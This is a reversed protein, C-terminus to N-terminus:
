DSPRRAVFQTVFSLGAHLAGEHVQREGEMAHLVAWGPFAAGLEDLTLMWAPDPPGGTRYPVQRPHYHEFLVVGGPRVARAVRALVTARLAPPLHCWISVVGGWAAEGPDYTALDAHVTTLAVGRAAALRAAKALGVASGDVGTVDFGQQARWEGTRGEGEALSLIPGPRPLAGVQAVLLDNPAEGYAFGSAAFREDWPNTM